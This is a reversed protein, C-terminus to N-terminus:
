PSRVGTRAEPALFGVALLVAATGLHLVIDAGGIPMLGFTDPAFIGLVGVALYVVGVGRAAWLARDTATAGVLLVAGIVLHVINHLDNIPFIGLLQGDASPMNAPVEDTVFADFFGVIGVLVYVAGLVLVVLRPLNM